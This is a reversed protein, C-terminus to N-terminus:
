AGCADRSGFKAHSVDRAIASAGILKGAANRVASISVSVDIRSGDKGVRQTEYHRVAEGRGLKELIEPLEDAHDDPVLMSVPQGVAEAASYGYLREAAPNWSEIIGTLSKGVIADESSAVIAALRQM